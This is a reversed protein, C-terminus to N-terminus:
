NPSVTSQNCSICRLQSHQEPHRATDLPQIGGTEWTFKKGVVAQMVIM